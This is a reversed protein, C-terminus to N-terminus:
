RVRGSPRPPRRAPRREALERALAVLRRFSEFRRPHIAHGAVAARVACGPEAAHLCDQFRCGGAAQSIEIFGSAVERVAPLPPAYDRVGPSDILDGGTALRHLVATTTTHRGQESAASIEQTVARAEPALANLLSSKGTGSQGVLVSIAGKLRSALSAIGPASRTSTHVIPYGIAAYVALEAAVDPAAVLESKNCAILATIGCWAASALYRDVVFWDPAPIPAVVAVLQSLNAIIPEAEGSPALRALTTKRPKLEYVIGPGDDAAPCAWRVADGCVVALRRGHLRCAVRHGSGDEVVVQQGHSEVM